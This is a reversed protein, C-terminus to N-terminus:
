GCSKHTVQRRAEIRAALAVFQGTDVREAREDPAVGCAEIDVENLWARLSRRLTKRRQSFCHRVLDAFTRRLAPPVLPQPRPTIRVVASRVKPPPFFCGPAVDFLSEVRALAGVMVGLRGYASTGPQAALREAVEKQVMIHLDQVLDVADLLHFILPTSINYPLNGVVRILAEDGFLSARSTILDLKLADCELVEVPHGAYRQRLGDALDRDVEVVILHAGADLLPQTLAGEGPGIELLKGDRQPAIAAVMNAIVNRDRLFHQGFRKRPVHRPSSM